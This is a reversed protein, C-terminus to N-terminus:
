PNHIRKLFLFRVSFVIFSTKVQTTILIMKKVRTAITSNMDCDYWVQTIQTASKKCQHSKQQPQSASTDRTDRKHQLQTTKTASM